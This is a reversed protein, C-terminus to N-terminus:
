RRSAMSSSMWGDIPAILDLGIADGVLKSTIGSHAADGLNDRVESLDAYEVPPGSIQLDPGPRDPRVRWDAKIACSRKGSHTLHRSHRKVIENHRGNPTCEMWCRWTVLEDQESGRPTARRYGNQHTPRLLRFEKNPTVLLPHLGFEHLATMIANGIGGSTKSFAEDLVVTGFLQRLRGPPCLAYGLSSILVFSALSKKEGGSDGQSGTRL